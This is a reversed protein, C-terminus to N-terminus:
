INIRVAKGHVIADALKTHASLLTRHLTSQSVRMRRAAATQSLKLLYKLRLAESEALTLSVSELQRLPVGAPKFYVSRPTFNIQRPKRHIIM